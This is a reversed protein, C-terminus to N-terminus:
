ELGLIKMPSGESKMPYWISKLLSELSKMPSGLSKNSVRKVKKDKEFKENQIKM